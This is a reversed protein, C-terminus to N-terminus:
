AQFLVVLSVLKAFIVASRCVNIIQIGKIRDLLPIIFFGVKKYEM